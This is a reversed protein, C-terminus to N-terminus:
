RDDDPESNGANNDHEEYCSVVWGRQKFYIHNDDEDIGLSGAAAIVSNIPCRIEYDILTGAMAPVKEQKRDIYVDRANCDCIEALTAKTKEENEKSLYGETKLMKRFSDVAMDAQLIRNSNGMEAAFQMVFLMLIFISAITTIFDKM